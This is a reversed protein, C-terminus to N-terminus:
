QKTAGSDRAKTAELTHNYDLILINLRSVRDPTVEPGNIAGSVLLAALSGAAMGLPLIGGLEFGLPLAHSSKSRDETAILVGVITAGTMM